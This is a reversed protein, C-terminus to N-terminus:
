VSEPNCAHPSIVTQNGVSEGCLLAKDCMSFILIVKHQVEMTVDYNIILVM